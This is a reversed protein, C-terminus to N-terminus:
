SLVGAPVAALGLHGRLTSSEYRTRAVGQDQLRPLVERVFREAGDATLHLVFGDGDTLQAALAAPESLDPTIERLVLRAEVAHDGAVAAVDAHTRALEASDPSDVAVLLPPHLQPSRPLNLPGAVRFFEGVHDIPRLRDFDVYVGSENDAVVADAAWSEWLQYLVTIFESARSYRQAAATTPPHLAAASDEGETVLRWGARGLSLNDLTSLMRAQNYPAVYQASVQAILGIDTTRPVLNALLTSSEVPVTSGPFPAVVADFVGTEAAHVARHLWSLDTDGPEPEPHLVFHSPM